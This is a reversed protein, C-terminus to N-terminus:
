CPMRFNTPIPPRDSVGQQGIAPGGGPEGPIMVVRPDARHFSMAKMPSTRPQGTLTGKLGDWDTGPDWLTLPTDEVHCIAYINKGDTVLLAETLKDKSVSMGLFGSRAPAIGAQVRNTVFESFITNPALARNERIEQTLQAPIPPWRNSVKWSGPM